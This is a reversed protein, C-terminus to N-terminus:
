RDRAPSFVGDPLRVLGTGDRARDVWGEAPRQPLGILQIRHDSCAQAQSPCQIVETGLVVSLRDGLAEFDTLVQSGAIGAPSGAVVIRGPVAGEGFGARIDEALVRSAAQFAGRAGYDGYLHAGGLAAATGMLIGFSAAAPGDPASRAAWALLCVLLVWVFLLERVLPADGTLLTKGVVVALCLALGGFLREGQRPEFLFLMAVAAVVVVAGAMPVPGLFLPAAEVLLRELVDLREAPPPLVEGEPQAFGFIGHLAENLNFIALTGIAVGIVFLSVSRIVSSRDHPERPAALLVALIALAAFGETMLGLPVFVLLLFEAIRRPALLVIGAYLCVLGIAPLMAPAHHAIEAVPPGLALAASTLAARAPTRDGRFIGCAVFASALSWLVVLAAGLLANAQRLDLQSWAWTLWHGNYAAAERLAESQGLLVPFSAAGVFPDVFLRPSVLFVVILPAIVAPFFIRPALPHRAPLAVRPRGSDPALAEPEDSTEVIM